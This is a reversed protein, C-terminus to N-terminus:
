AVTGMELLDAGFLSFAERSKGAFVAGAADDRNRLYEKCIFNAENAANDLGQATVVVGKGPQGVPDTGPSGIRTLARRGQDTGLATDERNGDGQRRCTSM